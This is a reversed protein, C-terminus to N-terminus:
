LFVDYGVTVSENAMLTYGLQVTFGNKRKSAVMVPFFGNPNLAVHYGETTFSAGFIVTKVSNDASTFTLTGSSASSQQTAVFVTYGIIKPVDVTGYASGVVVTFGTTTKNETAVAIGDVTTYAVRYNVTNLVGDPIVVDKSTDGAFAVDGADAISEAMIQTVIGKADSMDAVVSAPVGTMSDQVLGRPGRINRVSVLGQADVAVDFLYESGGSASSYTFLAQRRTMAM